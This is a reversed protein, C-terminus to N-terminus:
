GRVRVDVVGAAELQAAIALLRADEGRAGVLQVAIPTGDDRWGVPLSMAPQRSFSYPACFVGVFAPEPGGREFPGSHTVPCVLVTEPSWWGALDDGFAAIHDAGAQAAGRDRTRDRAAAESISPDVDDQNPARGLRAALWDLSCRRARDVVHTIARTLAPDRM